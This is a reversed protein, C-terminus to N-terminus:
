EEEEGDEFEADIIEDTAAPPLEAMKRDTMTANFRDSMVKAGAEITPLLMTNNQEQHRADIQQGGFMQIVQNKPMPLFQSHQLLLKRDKDGADTLASAITKAVVSKHSIAALMDGELKSHVFAMEVAAGLVKRVPVKASMAFAELPARQQIWKPSVDFLEVMHKIEEDESFKLLRMVQFTDGIGALLPGIRPSALVEDQTVGLKGIAEETLRRKPTGDGM